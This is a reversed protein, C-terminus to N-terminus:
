SRDADTYGLLDCIWDGLDDGVMEGVDHFLNDVFFGFVFLAAFGAPGFAAGAALYFFADMIATSAVMGLFETAYNIVEKCGSRYNGASYQKAVDKITVGAHYVEVGISIGNFIIMLSKGTSSMQVGDPADPTKRVTIGNSDCLSGDSCLKWVGFDIEDKGSLRLIDEGDTLCIDLFDKNYTQISNKLFVKSSDSLQDGYRKYFDNLEMPSIKDNMIALDTVSLSGITDKPVIKIDNGAFIFHVKDINKLESAKMSECVIEMAKSESQFIDMADEYIGQYIYKDIGNISFIDKNKIICDFETRGFCNLGGGKEVNGLFVTNINSCKLNNVYNESFFDNFARVSKLETKSDTLKIAESIYGSADKGDFLSNFFSDSNIFGEINNNTYIENAWEKLATGFGEDNFLKGAQTSSIYGYYQSYQDSYANM